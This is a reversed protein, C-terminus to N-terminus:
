PHKLKELSPKSDKFPHELFLEELSKKFLSQHGLQELADNYHHLIPDMQELAQGIPDDGFNDDLNKFENLSIRNLPRAPQYLYETASTGSVPRLTTILEMLVLRNLCENLIQTPVKLMDGLQAASTAPLCNQFRRGITLLVVLSLRERMSESLSGWAAQSNRFNVNQVAYSIVGGILVYLWFIYLGLMFVPFIALSGYLSRELVVRRVYLLALSSFFLVAGLTLTTWFFVIRMLLSRGLRVGWIDNFADEISKFLLLVILILSFAGAAGAVGSRAAAIIDSIVKVVEPSATASTPNGAADLSNLQRLQPAVQEMLEGLRNAILSPDTDKGLVFGGILVAIAVLPGLGLLSGFSLAAARAPIKTENFVTWTISTVRLAAYLWGRPSNDKLHSSSWIEKRYLKPLRLGIEILRKM